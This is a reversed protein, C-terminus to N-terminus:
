VICLIRAGLAGWLSCVEYFAYSEPGSPRTSEYFVYPELGQLKRPEGVAYSLGEPSTFHMPNRGRPSAPSGRLTPNQGQPGEPGTFYTLNHARPSEPSGWPTVSAKQVRVTRLATAEQTKQDGVAYSLVASLRLWHRRRPGKGGWPSCSEYFVCSDPRSPRGSEYFVYSQPGQPEGSAAFRTFCM